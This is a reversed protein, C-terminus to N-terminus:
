PKAGVGVIEDFGPTSHEIFGNDSYELMLVLLGESRALAMGELPGLVNLATAWGDAMSAENHLVTVSATQHTM